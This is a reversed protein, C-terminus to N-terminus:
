KIRRIWCQYSCLMVVIKDRYVDLFANIAKKPRDLEGSGGRWEYDDFAIIGGPKLAEFANVADKLVGYSTHDGDIYVFDYFERNNKFFYDSTLKVKIIKRKSRADRTKADYVDEVSSWNLQKHAVEDSGEWTDVDVLVSDTNKLINDYLWLSADGTYAGIQLIRSSKKQLEPVLFTGFNLLSNEVFWNPYETM